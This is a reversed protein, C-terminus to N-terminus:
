KERGPFQLIKASTSSYGTIKEGASSVKGDPFVLESEDFSKDIGLLKIRTRIDEPTQPKGDIWWEQRGDAYIISPGSTRHKLGDLWWEQHGDAFIVAPANERHLKGNQIWCLKKGHELSIAPLGGDRHKLGEKYWYEDGNPLEIAPGDLRHLKGDIWWEKIGTIMFVAPGNERHAKGDVYWAEIISKTNRIAPGGIRHFKGNKLWQEAGDIFMVAPGNERHLQGDKYWYKTGDTKIIAPLDNDRHLCGHKMWSQEHEKTTVAPGDDRHKKGEFYWHEDGNFCIVAPADVRHTKGDVWWETQGKPSITAPGDVRHKLDHVFWHQTGDIDTMAPGNERHKKGNQYWIEGGTSFITAPANDRHRQGKGNTYTYIIEGGNGKDTIKEGSLGEPEGRFIGNQLWLKSGTKETYAPGDKRHRIGNQYWYESGNSKILAPGNDKHTLGNKFHRTTGHETTHSHIFPSTGFVIEVDYILGSLEQETIDRSEKELIGSKFWLGTGDPCSIAPGNANDLLGGTYWYKRGDPLDIAPGGKRNVSGSKIWIQTGDPKVIAPGDDRDIYGNKWWIETGDELIMAPSHESHPIGDKTLHLTTALSFTSPTTESTSCSPALKTEGNKPFLFRLEPCSEIWEETENIAVCFNSPRRKKSYESYAAHINELIPTHLINYLEPFDHSHYDRLYEYLKLNEPSLHQLAESSLSSQGTQLAALYLEAAQSHFTDYFNCFDESENQKIQFKAAELFEKIDQLTAHFPVKEEIQHPYNKNIRTVVIEFKNATM